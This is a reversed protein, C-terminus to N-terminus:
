DRAAARFGLEWISWVILAILVVDCLAVISYPMVESVRPQLWHAGGTVLGMFLPLGALSPTKGLDRWRKASLFYCCVAALLIATAYVMLYAYAVISMPDIFAREGLERNAYPLLAFWILTMALMPVALALAGRRWAAADIRGEEERFLFRWDSALAM